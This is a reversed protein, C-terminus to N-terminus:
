PTLSLFATGYGNLTVLIRAAPAIGAGTPGNTVNTTADITLVSASAFTGFSSTDVIVTRPDGAGNNDALAHVARNVIMVRVTGDPSRTALTEISSTDGSANVTLIDPGPAAPTSPFMNFLTRDVWYSLYPASASNVEGYQKDAAYEWHYLARNGVKGLQSFVFPRWAAFFASTGRQDTVFAQGPNCTSKGTGDNFDANVNNETVWVQAQGLDPRRGLTKYFYDVNQVFVPVQDFLKADSDNQNCTGYFHTSLVDVQANVGGANSAALFTPLAQMPDGAGGTGLGFDSLELASIKITPDVALMAPVTANYLTVYESASLGNLNYENFIGWWTIPSNGPSQFHKAGVDFGGKNYYRVLNAAYAAFDQAHAAVLLRGQSDCMWAPATGIQFEPSHDGSALVPEATTDLITFDWDAATGSNSVMPMGGAIVQMRNHQAGLNTLEQERGAITAGTGFIDGTYQFIQFSTAMFQKLKGAIGLATDVTNSVKVLPAIILTFSTSKTQGASNVTLTPTYTGAMAVNSATFKIAGSPNTDSASYTEQVGAPLNVFSVQATESTSTVTIQAQVISGDQPLLIPSPQLTVTIPVPTSNSGSSSGCGAVLILIITSILVWAFGGFSRDRHM